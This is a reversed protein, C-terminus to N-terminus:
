HRVTRQEINAPVMIRAIFFIRRLAAYTNFIGDEIEFSHTNETEAAAHPVSGSIVLEILRLHGPSDSFSFSADTEHVAKVDKECVRRGAPIPIHIVQRMQTKVTKVSQEFLPFGFVENVAVDVLGIPVKLRERLVAAACGDDVGESYWIM